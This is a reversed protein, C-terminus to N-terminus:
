LHAVLRSQADLLPRGGAQPLPPLAGRWVNGVAGCSIVKGARSRGGGELREEEEKLRLAAHTHM